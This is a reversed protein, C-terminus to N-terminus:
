ILFDGIPIDSTSIHLKDPLVEAMFGFSKLFSILQYAHVVDNTSKVRMIRDCDELDFSAQYGVFNRRIQEILKTAHVPNSVNTKFVEVM